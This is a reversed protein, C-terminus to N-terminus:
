LTGRIRPTMLIDIVWSKDYLIDLEKTREGM